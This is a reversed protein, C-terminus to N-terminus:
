RAAAAAALTRRLFGWGVILYIAVKNEHGAKQAHSDDSKGIGGRAPAVCRSAGPLNRTIRHRYM